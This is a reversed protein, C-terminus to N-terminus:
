KVYSHLTWCQLIQIQQWVEACLDLEIVLKKEWTDDCYFIFYFLFFFRGEENQIIVARIVNVLFKYSNLHFKFFRYSNQRKISICLVSCYLVDEIQHFAFVIKPFWKEFASSSNIVFVHCTWQIYRASFENDSIMYQIRM